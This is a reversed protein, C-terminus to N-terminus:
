PNDTPTQPTIQTLLPELQASLPRTYARGGSGGFPPPRPMASMRLLPLELLGRVRFAQPQNGFEV